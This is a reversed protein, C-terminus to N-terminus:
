TEKIKKYSTNVHENQKNQKKVFLLRSFYTIAFMNVLLSLILWTRLRAAFEVLKLNETKLTKTQQQLQNIQQKYEIKMSKTTDVLAQMQRIDHKLSNNNNELLTITKNLNIIEATEDDDEMDIENKVNILEENKQLLTQKLSEILMASEKASQQLNKNYLLITKKETDNSTNSLYLAYQYEKLKILIDKDSFTDTLLHYYTDDYGDALCIYETSKDYYKAFQNMWHISTRMATNLQEIFKTHDLKFQRKSSHKKDNSLMEKLYPLTISSAEFLSQNLISENHCLTLITDLLQDLITDKYNIHEKFLQKTSTIGHKLMNTKLIFIGMIAQKHNIDLPFLDHISYTSVNELTSLSLM